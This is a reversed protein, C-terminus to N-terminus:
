IYNINVTQYFHKVNKYIGSKMTYKIDNGFNCIVRGGFYTYNNLLNTHIVSM